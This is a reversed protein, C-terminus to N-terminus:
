SRISSTFDPYSKDQSSIMKVEGPWAIGFAPDNWKIGRSYGATYFETMQYFVECNDTLTLFGHAFGKPIFIMRRNESTLQLSAWNMYTRSDPRLDIIVDFIAGMTCRVLKAEEYPSAQYHMGRLTGKKANFSINCQVFQTDIGHEKFERECWSRAFFGREDELREIDIVFAGQLCTEAFIM